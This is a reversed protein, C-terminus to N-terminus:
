SAANGDPLFYAVTGDHVYAMGDFFDGQDNLYFLASALSSGGDADGAPYLRRREAMWGDTREVRWVYWYPAGALKPTITTPTQM